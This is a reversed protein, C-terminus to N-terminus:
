IRASALGGKGTGEYARVEICQGRHQQALTQAIHEALREVTSPGDILRCRAEPVALEYRGEGSDYGFRLQGAHCELLDQRTGLHVGDWVAAWERELVADRRGDVHICVRSRHGHGLRQCHGGHKQLGHTYHYVAGRPNATRLKLVVDDVSRPLVSAVRPLLFQVLVTPTIRATDLAAVAVAPALYEYAGAAAEFALACRKGTLHLGVSALRRPVLLRHDVADDIARKLRQKVDRFDLVMSQDDLAGGLEVDVVLSNGALGRLPDLVACDITTLSEVFLRAM